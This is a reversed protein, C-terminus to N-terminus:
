DCYSSPKEDRASEIFDVVLNRLKIGRNELGSYDGKVIGVLQRNGGNYDYIASGSQGGQTDHKFFIYPVETRTIKTAMGYLSGGCKGDGRPSAECQGSTGPYGMNWHTTGALSYDARYGLWGLSCSHQNDYLVLVAFDRSDWGNNVYRPDYYYWQINKYGNPSPDGGNMTADIGDAGPWWDRRKLSDEGGGESFVCHAATLLHRPGIKTASCNVSPVANLNHGDAVLVGFTRWPYATMNFGNDASRLVRDDGGILNRPVLPDASLGLARDDGGIRERPVLLDPRGDDGPGAGAYADASREDAGARALRRARLRQELKRPKYAWREGADNVFVGVVDQAHIPQSLSAAEAASMPAGRDRGPLARAREGNVVRAYGAFEFEPDNPDQSLSAPVQPVVGVAEYALRRAHFVRMDAAYRAHEDTLTNAALTDAGLATSPAATSALLM